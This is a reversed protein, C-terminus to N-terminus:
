KVWAGVARRFDSSEGITEAVGGYGVGIRGCDDGMGSTLPANPFIEVRSPSQTCRIVRPGYRDSAPITLFKLSSEPVVRCAYVVGVIHAYVGVHACEGVEVQGQVSVTKAM